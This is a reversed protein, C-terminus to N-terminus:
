KNIKEKYTSIVSDVGNWFDSVMAMAEDSSPSSTWCVNFRSLGGEGTLRTQTDFATRTRTDEEGLFVFRQAEKEEREKERRRSEWMAEHRINAGVFHQCYTALLGERVDRHHNVSLFSLLPELAEDGDDERGTTHTKSHLAIGLIARGPISFFFHHSCLRARSTSLHQDDDKNLDNYKKIKTTCGCPFTPSLLSFFTTPPLFSIPLAIPSLSVCACVFM